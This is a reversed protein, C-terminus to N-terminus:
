LAIDISMNIAHHASEEPFYPRSAMYSLSFKHNVVAVGGALSQRNDTGVSRGYSALLRLFDQVRASASGVVMQEPKSYVDNFAADNKSQAIGFGISPQEGEFLTVRDRQRFDLHLSVDGNGFLYAGGARFTRPAFDAIKRNSLNEASVGVRLQSNILGAAGLALGVGSIEKEEKGGGVTDQTYGQVYQGGVGLSVVSFPAAVGISVRRKVPSDLEQVNKQFLPNVHGESFSSYSLGAAVNSTKSDVVGAQYFERGTTPWHYGASVSYEKELALMAPNMRIASMGGTAAASSNNFGLGHGGVSEYEDPIKRFSSAQAASAAQAACFFSGAAVVWMVRNAWIMIRTVRM